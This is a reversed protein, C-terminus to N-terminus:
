SRKLFIQEGSPRPSVKSTDPGAIFYAQDFTGRFFPLDAVGIATESRMGRIRRDTGHVLAILMFPLDVKLANKRKFIDQILDSRLENTDPDINNIHSIIEKAVDSESAGSYYVIDMLVYAPLFHRVLINAATVRDLPSDFFRQLEEVLPANNYTVQINQGALAFENDLEPTSGVPLVSGPLVISVEEDKSYAFNEDDVELTYGAIKSRGSLLFGESTRVNMEAGPGYGVVPIDVYYLAGDRQTAMSTSSLRRVGTRLVRYPMMHSYNRQGAGTDVIDGSLQAQQESSSNLPSPVATWPIASVSLQESVSEYLRFRVFQDSLETGGDSTASPEPDPAAHRVWRVEVDEGTPFEVSRDLELWWAGLGWRPDDGVGTSTVKFTGLYAVDEGDTLVSTSKAAYLTVWQNVPVAAFSSYDSYIRKTDQIALAGRIGFAVTSVTFGLPSPYAPDSSPDEIRLGVLPGVDLTRIIVEDGDVQARFYPSFNVADANLAAAVAAADAYPDATIFTHEHATYSVGDTTLSINVKKGYLNMPFVNGSSRIYAPLGSLFDVAVPADLTSHTMVRDVQVQVVPPSASWTQSLVKTITYAGVDPGSDIYLLHGQILTTLNDVGGYGEPSTDDSTPVLLTVVNSGVRTTALWSSTMNKRAPLDNIARRFEIVDGARVGRKVVPQGSTLFVYDDQASRLGLNRNWLSPDTSEESEPFVQAPDGVPDIRFVKSPDIASTFTTPDDGFYLEVSVPDLFYLRFDGRAAPGVVYGTRLLPDFFEKLDANSAFSVGATALSTRLQTIFTEYFGGANDWDAAYSLFGFLDDTSWVPSGEVDTILNIATRIPDVPFPPDVQVLAVKRHGADDKGWLDLIRLDQIIYQGKNPGDLITLADGVRAEAIDSTRHDGPETLRTDKKTTLALLTNRRGNFVFPPVNIEITDIPNSADATVQRVVGDAEEIKQTYRADTSDDINILPIPDPTMDGELGLQPFAILRLDLTQAGKGATEFDTRPRVDVADGYPVTIGTGQGTSDLVELSKLRVLPRALGTQKTYVEYRLGSGTATVARDVLAGQGGLTPSFGRITYEGADPGDIIRVTDGVVAGFVQIDISAFRLEFSGVTTQLDSVSGTNFPLKPVKPSVLDVRLNRVIRGRLSTSTAATFLTDVRLYSPSGPEVDLIRYTGAFGDGTEIVLTDNIQVGAADLDEASRVRNDNASPVEIDTLAIIPDEDTVSELVSQATQDETPRVFVDTHGGLHVTNDPVTVGSAIGGPANSITIYGAKFLAYSVSTTVDALTRDLLFLYKGGSASLVATITAELMETTPDAPTPTHARITDGAQPIISDDPGDDRYLVSSVFLWDGYIVGVGAMHLFGEGTGTLIDRNMGEQGAGVIQLARVSEFLKPTRSLIGRKTVLSRETLVQDFKGLYTENDERPQGDTFDSLNTVRVATPVNEIGIIDGRKINYESGPLEAKVAIDIFYLNGQRNFLMQAATLRYNESPFFNLGATTFVRRDTSIRIAQPASFYVRVGGTAFGGADRDEFWNAGLADAEAESMRSANNVSQGLRVEAIERKFPELLLQLPKTFVDELIGGNDAAMDPYEQLLRDRIFTPIDTSQPDDAFRRVAPAIVQTQAPSSPSLDINPDLALLRTELFDKLTDAFAM